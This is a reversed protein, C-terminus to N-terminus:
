RSRLDSIQKYASSLFGVLLPLIVFIAFALLGSHVVLRPLGRPLSPMVHHFVVAM